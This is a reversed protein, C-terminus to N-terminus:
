EDWFFGDDLSVAVQDTSAAEEAELEDLSELEQLLM